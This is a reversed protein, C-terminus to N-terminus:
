PEGETPRVILAPVEIAGLLAEVPGHLTPTAGSGPVPRGLVILDYAGNELERLITERVAGQHVASSAQIGYLSLTRLSAEHFREVQERQTDGSVVTLVTVTVGLHRLIRGAAVVEHKGAEGAAACLLVRRAPRARETVLLVHHSGARLLGELSLADDLAGRSAIVVDEPHLEVERFVAEVDAPVVARIELGAGGAELAERPSPAQAAESARRAALVTVRAHCLRAFEGGYALTELRDPTERDVIAFSLGRHALAHIRRVGVWARDGPRLPYRRALHASRTSDLLMHDVGFPVAPAIPRVGPMGPIRIRLRETSGSFETEEVVGEGFAPWDLAERTLKVAVDEPRFLVQVRRAEEDNGRSELPFRAQGLRVENAKCQGVFLNAKGLFTAVFETEPRLYLEHPAGVELLRGFNMVAMRDALEFAEDQDHTVFITTVRVERQIRRLTRRLETRIRADLAGFPEDLLLVAPRHALARAIAVRQQQGGSLQHPFRKHFGVLGVLELLEDRRRACERAGVKRVRLPFEVNEAVSMHGFLAYHQFVMGVDRRQPPFGTVDKGHLLVRGGDAPTLGAVIRLVTSKGSGSPGLLVFCEGDAVDLSVGNVVVHEGYTKLLRDVVISV